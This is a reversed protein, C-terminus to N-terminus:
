GAAAKAKAAPEKDGTVVDRYDAYFRKATNVADNWDLQFEEWDRQIDDLYPARFLFQLLHSCVFKEAPTDCSREERYCRQVVALLCAERAELDRLDLAAAFLQRIEDCNMDKGLERLERLSATKLAKQEDANTKM